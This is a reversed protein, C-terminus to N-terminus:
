IAECALASTGGAPDPTPHRVVRVPQFEILQVGDHSLRTTAEADLILSHAGWTPPPWLLTVNPRAAANALSQRGATAVLADAIWSTVVATCHPRGDDGITLLYAIRGYRDIEGQMRATSISRTEPSGCASNALTAQDVPETFHPAADTM